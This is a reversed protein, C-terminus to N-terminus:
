QARVGGDGLQTYSEEHLESGLEFYHDFAAALTVALGEDHVIVVTYDIAPDHSKMPLLARRRDFVALKMPLEDILRAEEGADLFERARRAIEPGEILRGEYICACRVGRALAELEAPNSDGHIYPPKSFVLIEQEADHQLQQFHRTAQEPRGLVEIAPLDPVRPAGLADLSERLDEVLAETEELQARREDVVDGLAVRPEVAIFSRTAGHVETALGKRCMDELVQYVRGQSVQARPALDRASQRGFRLLAIYARSENATLGFRRLKEELM